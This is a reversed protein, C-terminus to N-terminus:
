KRWWPKKRKFIYKYDQWGVDKHIPVISVLEWGEAGIKNLNPSYDRTTAEIKYEWKAM